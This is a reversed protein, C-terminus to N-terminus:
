EPYEKDHGPKGFLAGFLQFINNARWVMTYGVVIGTIVMEDRFAPDNARPGMLEVKGIKKLGWLNATFKALPVQNEDVCVFDWKTLGCDGSWTVVKPKGNEALAASRHTYSTHFRRQAVLQDKRGHCTYSSDISINNVMGTGVVDDDSKGDDETNGDSGDDRSAKRFIFKLKPFIKYSIIYLPKDPSRTDSISSKFKRWAFNMALTVHQHDSGTTKVPEGPLNNAPATEYTASAM